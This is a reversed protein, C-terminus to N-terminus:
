TIKKMAEDIAADLPEHRWCSIGSPSGPRGM